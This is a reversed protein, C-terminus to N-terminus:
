FAYNLKGSDGFTLRRKEYSLSLVLPAAALCFCVLAIVLTTTGSPGPRNLFSIGILMFAVPFMAAKTWYGM